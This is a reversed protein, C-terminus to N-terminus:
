ASAERAAAIFARIKAVDKVGDTEVGSSVDVAWPRVLRVAEGVNDPTLGGALVIPFRRAVQAAVVWDFTRGSGGLADEAHSDLLPVAGPELSSLVEQGSMGPKVKVAKIVPRSLKHCIDWPEHGSLQVLDLGAAEATRNITEPDADAFVGVLLLRKQALLAQIAETGSGAASLPAGGLARAVAQAQEVSVRRRSEAFVLGVFDAGAQAAALAHAPERVGCIKVRTM